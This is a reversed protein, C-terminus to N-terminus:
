AGEKNELNDSVEEEGQEEEEQEVEEEEGGQEQDKWQRDDEKKAGTLEDEEKQVKRGWDAGKRLMRGEKKGRAGEKKKIVLSRASVGKMSERTKRMTKGAKRM